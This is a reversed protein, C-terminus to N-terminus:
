LGTVYESPDPLVVSRSGLRVVRRDDRERADHREREAEGAQRDRAVLKLTASRSQDAVQWASNANIVANQTQELQARLAFVQQVQARRSAVAALFAQPTAERPLVTTALDERADHLATLTSRQAVIHRSLEGRAVQERAERVHLLTRLQNRRNM